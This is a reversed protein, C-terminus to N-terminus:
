LCDRQEITDISANFDPFKRLAGALVKILMATPTLKAGVAEAKPGYRKRLVEFETIDARDFQTVM